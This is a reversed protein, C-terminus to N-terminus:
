EGHIKWSHLQSNEKIYEEASGLHMPKLQTLLYYTDIAEKKADELNMQLERVLKYEGTYHM